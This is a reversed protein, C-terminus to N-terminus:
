SPKNHGSLIRKNRRKYLYVVFPYIFWSLEWMWMGAAFPITIAATVPEAKIRETIAKAEGTDLEDTVLNGKNLAYYWASFSFVGLLCAMASEFIRTSADAELEIGVRIAYLFLLLSFLQGISLVIHRTDTRVIYKFLLNSQVWYIIVIVLAILVVAFNLVSDALMDLLSVWEPNEDPRPLLVFLRWITIGFVVDVLTELRRLQRHERSEIS